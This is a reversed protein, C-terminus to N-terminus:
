LIQKLIFQLIGSAVVAASGWTKVQTKFVKTSETEEELVKIRDVHGCHIRDAEKKFADMEERKAYHDDMAELRKEIKGISEKIYGIDNAMVAISENQTEGTDKKAM